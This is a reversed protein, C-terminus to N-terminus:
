ISHHTESAYPTLESKDQPFSTLFYFWQFASIKGLLSPSSPLVSADKRRWSLSGALKHDMHQAQLDAKSMM